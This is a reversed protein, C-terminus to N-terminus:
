VTRDCFAHLIPLREPSILEQMSCDAYTTRLRPGLSHRWRVNNFLWAARDPDAACWLVHAVRQNSGTVRRDMDEPFMASLAALCEIFEIRSLFPMSTDLSEVVRRARAKPMSSNEIHNRCVNEAHNLGGVNYGRHFNGWHNSPLAENVANFKSM